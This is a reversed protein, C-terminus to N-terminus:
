EMGILKLFAKTVNGYLYAILPVFLFVAAASLAKYEWGEKSLFTLIPAQHTFVLYYIAITIALFGFIRAADKKNFLYQSKLDESMVVPAHVRDAVVGRLERSLRARAAHGKSLFVDGVVVLSYPVTRDMSNVLHDPGGCVVRGGGSRNLKALENLTDEMGGAGTSAPEATDDEIGGTDRWSKQAGDPADEGAAPTEAAADEGPEEGQGPALRVLEVAANWKTAIDVVQKFTDSAANFQEQIWLLNTTAMTAGIKKIGEMGELVEGIHGAVKADQPNYTITVNGDDARVKFSTRYTREDRALALRIKAALYLDDMTRRSAPTMQFDPLQAMTVLASAANDVNLQALNVIVDYQMADDWSIGFVNHVWVRQDEDVEEIYRRVKNRDDLRLRQMAARIRYDQDAIVRVRLMHTLGPLLMHGTRGHFILGKDGLQECLYATTFAIFHERELALRQSFLGQKLM